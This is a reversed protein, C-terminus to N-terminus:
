WLKLDTSKVFYSRDFEKSLALNFLVMSVGDCFSHHCKWIMLFHEDGNEEIFPACVMRWLPGDLPLKTNVNDQVFQDM